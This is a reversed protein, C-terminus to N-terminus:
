VGEYRFWSPGFLGGRDQNNKPAEHNPRKRVAVGRRRRRRGTRHRQYVGAVTQGTDALQRGGERAASAAGRRDRGRVLDEPRRSAELLDRRANRANRPGGAEEPPDGGRARDARPRQRAA